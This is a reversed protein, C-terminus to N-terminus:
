VMNAAQYIAPPPIFRKPFLTLWDSVFAECSDPDLCKVVQFSYGAQQVHRTVWEQVPDEPVHENGLPVAECEVLKGDIITKSWIGSLIEAAHFFIRKELDEITKGSSDMHDGFNDHPLFIGTLNHSVPAMRLEVPNFASLGATNVRNILPPM